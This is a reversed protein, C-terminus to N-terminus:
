SLRLPVLRLSFLYFAGDKAFGENVARLQRSFKGQVWDRLLIRSVLFALTAGVSSAFSVLVLAYWFGFLAGGALTMIAAGPLSLGTVVVYVAFFLLGAIVPNEDKWAQWEGLQAKAVDLQLYSGIDFYFWGSLAAALLVLVSGQKKNM